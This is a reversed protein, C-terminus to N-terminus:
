RHGPWDYHHHLDKEYDPDVDGLATWPPSAKVQHRSVEIRIQRDAWSIERVAHRSILVHKGSWWNGTDVVLYPFSWSADDILLDEVKGIAGDHGEVHYGTISDISRLHPDCDDPDAVNEAPPSFVFLPPASYKSAIPNAGFASEIAMPRWGYYDYLHRELQMSVPEHESLEPSAQVQARTLKVSLERRENDADGIAAPHLLVKRSTLWKGTDVVLWRAAWTRDDFLFDAVTGIEGDSAELAYGQFGSAFKFM